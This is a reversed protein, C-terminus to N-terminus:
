VCVGGRVSKYRLPSLNGLSEFAWGNRREELREEMALMERHKM